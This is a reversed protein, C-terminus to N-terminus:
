TMYYILYRPLVLHCQNYQPGLYEVLINDAKSDNHLVEKKVSYGLASM